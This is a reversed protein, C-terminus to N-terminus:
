EIFPREEGRSKARASILEALMEFAFASANRAAIDHSGSLDADQKNSILDSIGRVVAFCVTPHTKVAVCFGHEEMAVAHADSYTECLRKFEESRKSSVVKEGAAIPKVLAKPSSQPTPNIRKQWLNDRMVASARQIAEHSVSTAEPRPMFRSAAKGSEYGYVKDAAIVDGIKLDQRLGGAIGVFFAFPSQFFTLARETATASPANGMGTQVVAVTCDGVETQFRGIEYITGNEVQEQHNSLYSKVANFEEPLATVFVADVMFRTRRIQNLLRSPPRAETHGSCLCARYWEYKLQIFSGGAIYGYSQLFALAQDLEAGQSGFNAELFERPLGKAHLAIQGLIDRQRGSLLQLDDRLIRQLAPNALMRTQGEKMIELTVKEGQDQTAAALEAGLLQLIFPHGGSWGLASECLDSAVRSHWGGTQERQLLQVASEPDLGSLPLWQFQHLFDAATEFLDCIRQSASIILRFSPQNSLRARLRLLFSPEFELLMEGEDWLMVVPKGQAHEVLLDVLAQFAHEPTKGRVRDIVIGRPQFERASHESLFEELFIESNTQGHSLASLDFFLAIGGNQRLLDALRLLISTKGIRRQGCVWIWEPSELMRHLEFRRGYFSNGRVAGGRIFPIIRKLEM